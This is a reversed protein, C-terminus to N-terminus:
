VSIDRYCYIDYYQAARTTVSVLKVSTHMVTRVNIYITASITASLYCFGCLSCKALQTFGHM